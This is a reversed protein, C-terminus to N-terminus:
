NMVAYEEEQIIRYALVLTRFGERAFQELHDMTTDTFPRHDAPHLSVRPIIVNDAGKCYLKITGNQDRVIVSM